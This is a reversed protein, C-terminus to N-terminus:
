CVITWIANLPTALVRWNAGVLLPERLEMTLLPTVEECRQGEECGASMQVELESMDIGGVADGAGDGDGDWDGTAGGDGCAGMRGCGGGDGGGSLVDAGGFHGAAAAAAAAVPSVSALSCGFLLLAAAAAVGALARTPTPGGAVGGARERMGVQPGTFSAADV